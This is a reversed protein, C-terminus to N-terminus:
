REELDDKLWLLTIMRDYYEIYRTDEMIDHDRDNEFNSLWAYVPSRVMKGTDGAKGSLLEGAASHPQIKGMLIRPWFNKARKVWSITGGDSVVLAVQENTYHVYQFTTAMLSCKFEEALSDLLRLSPIKGRTNPKFLFEPMLLEAAFVNAEAEESADNWITFDRATHQRDHPILPHLVYHGIEHAVTFRTRGPNLGTKVRIIGGAGPSAVIRGEATNLGGEEILLEGAAYALVELDIEQPSGVKIKTLLDRAAQRCAQQRIDSLPPMRKNGRM